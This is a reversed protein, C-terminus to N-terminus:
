GVGQDYGISTVTVVFLPSAASTGHGITQHWELISPGALRRRSGGVRCHELESVEVGVAEGDVGVVLDADSV